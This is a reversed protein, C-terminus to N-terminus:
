DGTAAPPAYDPSTATSQDAFWAVAAAAVIAIVLAIAIQQRKSSIHFRPAIRRKMRRRRPPHTEAAVDPDTETM